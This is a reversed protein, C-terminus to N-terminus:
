APVSASRQREHAFSAVISLWQCRSLSSRPLIMAPQWRLRGSPVMQSRSM